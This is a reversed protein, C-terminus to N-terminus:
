YNLFLRRNLGDIEVIGGLPLIPQPDTHGFDVDLVMPANTNYRRFVSLVAEHQAETYAASEGPSLAKNWEWAKPRGMLLGAAGGIIGREGLKLLVQEVVPAAPMEESTELCLICGQLREISPLWHNAELQWDIIELCGGWLRGRASAAGNWIWGASPHTIPPLALEEKNSWDRYRDIYHDPPTIEHRGREFFARQLGTVTLPHMGGSLAFQTMIAGGYYSPIGLNWLYLGLNTNDSYGFFPKPCRSIVEPDLHPLLRIQDDGGITSIIGKITPDAFAAHLDRAREKFSSQRTTSPYEVPELGFLHRLRSLGQEYVDPFVEPLAKSPSLVAVRDGRRLVPLEVFDVRALAHYSLAARKTEEITLM